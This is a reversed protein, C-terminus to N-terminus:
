NRRDITAASAAAPRVSPGTGARAMWSEIAWCCIYEETSATGGVALWIITHYPKTQRSRKKRCKEGASRAVSTLMM